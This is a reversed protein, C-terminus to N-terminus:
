LEAGILVKRGDPLFERQINFGRDFLFEADLCSDADVLAIWVESHEHTSLNQFRKPADGFPWVRIEAKM